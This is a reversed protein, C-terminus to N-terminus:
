KSVFHQDVWYMLNTSLDALQSNVWSQTAYSSLYSSILSSVYSQTALANGNFTLSSGSIEVLGNYIVSVSASENNSSISASYGTISLQKNPSNIEFDPGTDIINGGPMWLSPFTGSSEGTQTFYGLSMVKSNGNFIELYQEHLMMYNATNSTRLLSGSITGGQIRDASIYGTSINAGNIITQGPTSLANFTAYGTLDINLASMSIKAGSVNIASVIAAGKITGDAAVLSITDGQQKIETEATTIRDNPNSFQVETDGYIELEASYNYDNSGSQITVLTNNPVATGGTFNYSNLPNIVPGARSVQLKAEKPVLVVKSLSVDSDLGVGLDSLQSYSYVGKEIEQQANLELASTKISGAKLIAGNLEGATVYDANIKGDQTMATGFPGDYGASSYGLGGLDWRWVKQATSKNTTDMISIGNEDIVVHGDNGKLILNTANDVWKQLFTKTLKNNVIASGFVDAVQSSKNVSDSLDRKFNGFEVEEIRGTLNNKKIHIIKCNIDIDIPSVRVVVTDGMHLTELVSYNQYETSKSLEVFDVKYNVQLKDCGTDTYYKAADARLSEYSDDDSFEVQKIKPHAYKSINPSDVYLEPLYLGNNGIPKIRTILSDFNDTITIGKINKKYGILVGSSVGMSQKWKIDFNNRLLEGGYVSILFTIAEIPNKGEIDGSEDDLYISNQTTIDSMYTSPTPYALNTMVKDLAAAGSLGRIDINNVLNDLLDYFVHRANITITTIDKQQVNYIRFLQGDVQIINEDILYKWKGFSDVPYELEVEYTSNLDETTNCSTCEHLVVLGNTIFSTEAKDYVRILIRKM